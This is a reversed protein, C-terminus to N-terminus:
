GAYDDYAEALRHLFVIMEERTVPDNLRYNPKSTSDGRLIKTAISWAVAAAAWDHPTNGDGPTGGTALNAATNAPAETANEYVGATNSIGLYPTPDVPTNNIRIEFHCHNGFSYGTSGEIGLPDGTKVTQGASVLRQSMHCLYIRMGGACDLRVYNGWQWTLTKDTEQPIMTSVGVTADCPARIIKESQGVLDVGNHWGAVGNLTRSGYPSTLSVKGRYPLKLTAM